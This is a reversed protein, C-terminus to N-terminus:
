APATDHGLLLAVIDLATGIQPADGGLLPAYLHVDCIRVIADALVRSPMRLRLHGQRQEDELMEAILRASTSEIAGPLLALRIFLQPERRTLARLPESGSVATMLRELVDLILAAGSGSAAAIAKRYTRETAEALVTAILEDRNGVHRYLTARGIGLTRALVSMDLPEGTLYLKTAADVARRAESTAIM